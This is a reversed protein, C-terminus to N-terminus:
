KVKDQITWRSNSYFLNAAKKKNAKKRLSNTNLFAIKNLIKFYFANKEM